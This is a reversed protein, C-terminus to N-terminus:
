VMDATEGVDELGETDALTVGYRDIKGHGPMSDDSEESACANASDM